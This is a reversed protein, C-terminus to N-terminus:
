APKRSYWARILLSQFFQIPLPLGSNRLLAETSAPPLVGIVERLQRSLGTLSEDSAGAVRHMASWKGVIDDFEPSDLDFSIEANILYGNPKLRQAMGEFLAQREAGDRLFHAVLLCLVADFAPTTGIDALYGHILECRQGIGAEQLRERCVALMSESPDVGTFRWRPFLQALRVIEMGTGVGVCLIRADDPLDQLILRIMFHLNDNIAGTRQAREDYGKSFSENFFAAVIQENRMDIGGAQRLARM